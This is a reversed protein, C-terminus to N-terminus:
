FLNKDFFFIFMQPFTFIQSFVTFKALVQSKFDKIIFSFFSFIFNCLKVHGESLSVTRLIVLVLAFLIRIFLIAANTNRVTALIYWMLLCGKPVSM